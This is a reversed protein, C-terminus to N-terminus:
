ATYLIFRTVPVLSQREYARHPVFSARSALFKDKMLEMFSLIRQLFLLNTKRLSWLPCFECSACPIQREYAGHLVFSVAPLLSKDKM